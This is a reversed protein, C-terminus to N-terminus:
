KGGFKPKARMLGLMVEYFDRARLSITLDVKILFDFDTKCSISDM